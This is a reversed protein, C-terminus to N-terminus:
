NAELSAGDKGKPHPPIFIKHVPFQVLSHFACGSTPQSPYLLITWIDPKLGMHILLRSIFM